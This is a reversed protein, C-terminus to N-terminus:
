EESINRKEIARAVSRRVENLDFPKLEYNKAMKYDPSSIISSLQAGKPALSPPIIFGTRTGRRLIQGNPTPRYIGLPSNEFLSKYREESYSLTHEAKSTKLESKCILVLSISSVAGIVVFDIIVEGWETNTGTTGSLLQDLNLIHELVIVLSLVALACIVILESRGGTIKEM